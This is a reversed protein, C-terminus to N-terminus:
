ESNRKTTRKKLFLFILKSIM